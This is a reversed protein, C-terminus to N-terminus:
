GYARGTRLPGAGSGDLPAPGRRTRAPGEPSARRNRRRRAANPRSAPSCRDATRLRHADAARCLGRVADGFRIVSPPGSPGLLRLKLAARAPALGDGGPDRVSALLAPVGAADPTLVTAASVTPFTERFVADSLGSTNAM